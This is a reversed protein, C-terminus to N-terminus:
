SQLPIIGSRDPIVPIFVDEAKDVSVPGGAPAMTCGGPSVAWVNAVAVTLCARMVRNLIKAKM